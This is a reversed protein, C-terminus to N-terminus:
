AARGDVVLTADLREAIEAARVLLAAYARADAPSLTAFAAEEREGYAERTLGLSVRHDDMVTATLHIIPSTPTM